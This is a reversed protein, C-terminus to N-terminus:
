SLKRCRESEVEPEITHGSVESWRLRGGSGWSASIRKPEKNPRVRGMREDFPSSRTELKPPM